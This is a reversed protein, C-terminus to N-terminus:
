DLEAREYEAYANLIAARYEDEQAAPIANYIKVADFLEEAERHEARWQQFLLPLAVLEVVKGAINLRMVPIDSGCSCSAVGNESEPAALATADAHGNKGLIEDVRAAIEQALADAAREGDADLRRCSRPPKLNHAALFEPIVISATPKASFKETARAACRKDCGDITITPYFRAFAREKDNGALFLPLCLTVTDKPRLNELVRLTAMRALTGEPFEEGSCSVLGVKKKPLVPM